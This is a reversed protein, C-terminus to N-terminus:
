FTHSISVYPFRGPIPYVTTDFSGISHAIPPQKDFLNLIGFSLTTRGDALRYNVQVDHWTTAGLKNRSLANNQYDPYSCLGLNTLSEPTGDFRDSCVELLDSVYHVRWVAQWPGYSWRTQLQSKFHPYGGAPRGTETGLLQTMVPASPNALNPQTRTFLRTWTTQWNFDFTGSRQTTLTYNAAFNMGETLLAGFNFDGDQLNTIAGSANRSIFACYDPLGSAYCGDLVAQPNLSGIANAIEIKFYDVDFRLPLGQWPSFTTGLTRSTSTEPQLGPNRGTTSPVSGNVQTYALPVGAAACNAAVTGGQNQYGSCPDAVSASGAVSATFLEAMSPASFDQSWSARVKVQNNITWHLAALNSNISGFSSYNSHRTDADLSLSQAFPADKLLPVNLLLASANAHYGGSIPPNAGASSEGVAALADPQDLGSENLYEYGLTAQLPGAPLQVLPTSINATYDRQNTELYTQATYTVYNAMTPTISGGNYQGGFVNLPVCSPNATNPGCNSVPGLANALNVLNFEPGDMTNMTNRNVIANMGWTFPHTGLMFNGDLGADFYFTQSDENISRPGIEVPQYSLALLNPNAGNADLDFGFPNYPNTASVSIPNTAQSGISIEAPGEQQESRRDNYLATYHGTVNDSFNYSGQVYLASRKSPTQLYNLTSYNFLDTTPDFAEFDTPSTGPRGPIVTLDEMQSTNPNIFQFRGQATVSSGRSIGTGNNPVSSIARDGDLVPRQEAYSANFIFSSDADTMGHTFEYASTQGDRQGGAVYEGLRASAESGNFAQKTVINIVGAMAGSGYEASAGSTQIEVHDVIALPITDLDVEGTILAPWRRGNVLVLVRSCGLNSLNVCTEGNAGFNQATNTGSGMNPLSALFEGIYTLGSDHIQQQSIIRIPGLTKLSNGPRPQAKGTVAVKNLSVVADTSSDATSPQSDAWGAPAIGIALAAQVALMLSAKRINM